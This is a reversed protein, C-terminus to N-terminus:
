HKNKTPMDPLSPLLKGKIAADVKDQMIMTALAQFAGFWVWPFRYGNHLGLGQLLVMMIAYIVGVSVRWCYLGENGLRKEQLYKYNKWINLHNIGFCSLMFLFTLVGLTGTEGAVQGPLNHAQFRSGIAAGHQGPGVGFIPNNSWNEWGDYFGATRGAMNRNAEESITSDWLTRYRDQMEDSMAFWGLPLAVLIIPIVKFRHKSFPVPLLALTVVMILAGRSGTLMMSRLTLLVYGWVFLYHWYKKCLAVLPLTLPLACIIM